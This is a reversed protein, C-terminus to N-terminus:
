WFVVYCYCSFSVSRGLWFSPRYFFPWGLCFLSVDASFSHGAWDFRRGFFLHGAWDFSRGFFFLRGTSIAISSVSLGLRFSPRLLSVPGNSFCGFSVSRVIRLSVSLFMCARVLCGGYYRIPATLIVATLSLENRDFHRSFSVTRDLWFLARQM